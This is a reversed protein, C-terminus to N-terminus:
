AKPKCTLLTNQASAAQAPDVICLAVSADISSSQASQGV